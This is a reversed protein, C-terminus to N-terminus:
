SQQAEPFDSVRPRRRLNTTPSYFMWPHSPAVGCENTRGNKLIQECHGIIVSGESGVYRVEWTVFLRWLLARQTELCMVCTYTSDQRARLSTALWVRCYYPCVKRECFSSKSRATSSSFVWSSLWFPKLQPLYCRKASYWRNNTWIQDTKDKFQTGSKLCFLMNQGSGNHRSLNFRCKNSPTIDCHSLSFM